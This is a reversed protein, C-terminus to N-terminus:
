KASGPCGCETYEGFLRLLHRRASGVKPPAIQIQRVLRRTMSRPAGPFGDEWVLPGNRQLRWNSIAEKLPGESLRSQLGTHAKLAESLSDTPLLIPALPFALPCTRRGATVQYHPSLLARALEALQGDDGHVFVTWGGASWYERTSLISGSANGGNLENLSRIDEFRSTRKAEHNSNQLIDGRRTSEYDPTTLKSPIADSRCSVKFQRSFTPLDERQIGVAAGLMGSIASKGPHLQTERRAINSSSLSPTGWSGLTAWVDFALIM